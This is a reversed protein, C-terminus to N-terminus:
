TVLKVMYRQLIDHNIIQWSV